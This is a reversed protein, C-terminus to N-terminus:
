NSLFFSNKVTCKLSVEIKELFLIVPRFIKVIDFM